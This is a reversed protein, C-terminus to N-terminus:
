ARRASRQRWVMLYIAINLLLAGSGLVIQAERTLGEPYIVPLLYRAVFDGGYGSEGARQRLENELPTLPCIWGAYEIAVGWLAAPVHLWALKPWRLLLLGGFIVFLVFVLHAVLVANALLSHV